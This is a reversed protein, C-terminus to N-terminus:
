FPIEDEEIEDKPKNGSYDYASDGAATLSELSSWQAEWDMVQERRLNQYAIFNDTGVFRSSPYGEKGITMDIIFPNMYTGHGVDVWVPESNTFTPCLDITWFCLWPIKTKKAKSADTAIQKLVLEAGRPFQENGYQSKPNNDWCSTKTYGRLALILPEKVDPIMVTVQYHASYKGSVVNGSTDLRNEKKTMWPFYHEKKSEDTIIQRQRIGIPVCRLRQTVWATEKPTSPDTGYRIDQQKWYGRPGPEQGEISSAKIAWFGGADANSSNAQGHWTIIPMSKFEPQYLDQDVDPINSPLNMDYTM